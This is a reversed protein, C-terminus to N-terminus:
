SNAACVIPAPKPYPLKKLDLRVAKATGRKDLSRWYIHKGEDFHPEIKHEKGMKATLKEPSRTGFRAVASRGPVFIGDMLVGDMARNRQGGYNWSAAQYVGGHHGHTADAFSVLLDCIKRQRIFDCTKGILSTLAPKTDDTRVLRSLELVEESWRTPPSSFFCAAIPRGRDGFLGGEEHLIGVVRVNGPCRGSYHYKLVLEQAEEEHGVSFHLM